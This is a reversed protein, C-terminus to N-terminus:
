VFKTPNIAAMGLWSAVLKPVETAAKGQLFRYESIFDPSELNILVKEAKHHAYSLLSAAPYVQLSSGVVLIKDASEVEEIATIMAPVEEGFWVINPRLASGDAATDHETLEVDGIYEVLEPNRSSRAECLKGHLHIVKTSGAREHLDDVNQTIVVVQYHQELSAIALHAANPCAAAAQKRLANYFRHVLEPNAAFAEPTALEEVAYKQWLGDADRFIALGSEASIGAGSIVVIKEKKSQM